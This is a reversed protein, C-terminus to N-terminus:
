YENKIKLIDVPVVRPRSIWDFIKEANTNSPNKKHNNFLAHGELYDSEFLLSQYISGDAKLSEYYYMCDLNQTNPDTLLKITVPEGNSNTLQVQNQVTLETQLTNSPTSACGILTLVISAIIM